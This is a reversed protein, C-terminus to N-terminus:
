LDLKKQRVEIPEIDHVKKHCEDCLAALNAMDEGEWNFNKWDPYRIHHVQTARRLQCRECKHNALKLKKARTLEWQNSRLYEKHFEWNSPFGKRDLRRLMMKEERELRDEENEEIIPSAKRKSLKGYPKDFEEAIKKLKDIQDRYVQDLKKKTVNSRAM